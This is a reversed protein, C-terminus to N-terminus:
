RRRFVLVAPDLEPPLVLRSLAEDEGWEFAEQDDYSKWDGAAFRHRTTVVVYLEVSPTGFVKREFRNGPPPFSCIVARPAHRSLAAVADLRTVGDPYAIAHRWSQDDTATIAVGEATLFRSLTGDGAAIELAPRGAVLRALARVLERAYFCYIGKPQVLPMLLRKQTVLPWLLRFTRIPVPRRTLGREFLLRQVLGGSWPGFRIPGEGKGTAAALLTRQAALRALRAAALHPLATAIVEPNGHSSAIRARYPAAADRRRVVFAELAAPSGTSTAAVLEEGVVRWEAPFAAMLEDLTAAELRGLTDRATGSM